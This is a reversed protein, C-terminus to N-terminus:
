MFGHPPMDAAPSLQCSGLSPRNENRGSATMPLWNKSHRVVCSHSPLNTMFGIRRIVSQEARAALPWAAAAGGLLTIFHRRRM